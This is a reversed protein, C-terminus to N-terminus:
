KRDGPKEPDQEGCILPTSYAPLGIGVPRPRPHPRVSKLIPLSESQDRQSQYNEKLNDEQLHKEHTEHQSDQPGQDPSTKVRVLPM